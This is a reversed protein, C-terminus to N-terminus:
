NKSCGGYIHISNPTSSIGELSTITFKPKRDKPLVSDLMQQYHSQLLYNNFQSDNKKVHDLAPIGISDVYDDGSGKGEKLLFDRSQSYHKGFKELFHNSDIQLVVRHSLDPTGRDIDIMSYTLDSLNVDDDDVRANVPKIPKSNLLLLKKFYPAVRGKDYPRLGICTLEGGLTSEEIKSYDIGDAFLREAIDMMEDKTAVEVVIKNFPGDIWKKTTKDIAETLRKGNANRLQNTIPAMSAHAVQTALVGPGLKDLIDRRVVIYQVIGMYVNFFTFSYIFREMIKSGM